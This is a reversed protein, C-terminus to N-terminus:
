AKTAEVYIVRHERDGTIAPSFEPGTCDTVDLRAPIPVTEDACVRKVMAKVSMSRPVAGVAAALRRIASAREAFGVFVSPEFGATTLNRTADEITWYGTNYPSPHFGPWEPNPMSILLTGSATLVRRMEALFRKKDSLYYLAEFLVATDISAADAPVDAANFRRVTVNARGTAASAFELNSLDIDGALVKLAADGLAGLAVGAGCAAELVSKGRSHRVAWAYRARMMEFQTRSALQGPLETVDGFSIRSGDRSARVGEGGGTTKASRTMVDPVMPNAAGAM